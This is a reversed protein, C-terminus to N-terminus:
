VQEGAARQRECVIIMLDISQARVALVCEVLNGPLLGGRGEGEM